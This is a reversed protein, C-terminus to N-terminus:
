QALVQSFCDGVDAVGHEAICFPDEYRYHAAAVCQQFHLRAMIMCTQTDPQQMLPSLSMADSSNAANLAEFAALTIMQDVVPRYVPNARIEPAPTGAHATGPGLRFASWFNARVEATRDNMRDSGVAGPAALSTLLEISAERPTLAVEDLHAIRAQGDRSVGKAWDEDVIEYAHDTLIESIASLRATEASVTSLISSRAADAGQIQAAYSFDNRMGAIVADRGYYDAVERVGDVFSPSQAAILSGYAMWSQTLADPDHRSITELAVDIDEASAVPAEELGSVDSQYVAYRSASRVLPAELREEVNPEDSNRSRADAPVAVALAVIAAPLIRRM